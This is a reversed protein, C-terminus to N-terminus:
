LSLHVEDDEDMEESIDRTVLDLFNTTQESTFSIQFANKVFLNEIENKPVLKRLAKPKGKVQFISQIFLKHNQWAQNTLLSLKRGLQLIRKSDFPRGAQHIRAIKGPCYSQFVNM